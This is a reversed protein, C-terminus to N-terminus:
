AVATLIPESQGITLEIGDGIWSRGGANDEGDLTLETDLDWNDPDFGRNAALWAFDDQHSAIVDRLTTM